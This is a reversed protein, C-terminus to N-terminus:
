KTLILKANRTIRLRYQDDNHVILIEQRGQFLSDASIAETQIRQRGSIHPNRSSLDAPCAASDPSSEPQDIPM